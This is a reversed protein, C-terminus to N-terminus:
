STLVPGDFSISPSSLPDVDLLQLSSKEDKDVGMYSGYNVTGEIYRDKATIAFDLCFLSAESGLFDEIVVVRPDKCM